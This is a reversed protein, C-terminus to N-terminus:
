YGSSDQNFRRTSSCKPLSTFIQQFAPMLRYGAMAFVAVIPVVQQVNEQRVLLIIVFLTIGGFALAELAFKPLQAVVANWSLLLVNQWSAKSYEKVFFPERHIVKIEKIGGFAESVVKYRM